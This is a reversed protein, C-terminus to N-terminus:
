IYLGLFSLVFYAIYYIGEVLVFKKIFDSNKETGFISKLAFYMLIISVVSCLKSIPITIMSIQSSIITLLSLVSAIIVPLYSITVATIVTILSKKNKTNIIFVILSMVLVIVAPTIFAKVISIMSSGFHSYGWISSLSFCKDLVEAVTWIILFVIAYKLYKGNDKTGIEKIKELPNKLLEGIFGKTEVADKKIDVNKITEKVQNVTSSAESKLEETNVKKEEEKGEM